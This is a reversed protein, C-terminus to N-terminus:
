KLTAAEGDDHNGFISTPIGYISAICEKSLRINNLIDEASMAGSSTVLEVAKRLMTPNELQMFDDLPEKKLWRNKSISKRLNLVQDDTFISLDHCRYIQAQVSVKWRRKLEVFGELRTTFVEHPYTEEPLLFAGAFRNAEGEIRKLTRADELEDTSVGRHLVLHGLEHAADFRQRACSGSEASLFVFPRAGNWYSFANVDEAGFHSRAFIIGKSEMLAVINAIPGDGLGWARRCERAAAEIEESRYVGNGSSPGWDLVVPNPLKVANCLFATAQVLWEKWSDCQENRKKTKAGFARYFAVSSGGFVAPRDTTFYSVPQKLINAIQFLNAGDPSKAGQEWQSVSQPTVGLIDAFERQNIGVARRAERIREPIVKRFKGDGGVRSWLDVVNNSAM